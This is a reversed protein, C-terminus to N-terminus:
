NELELEKLIKAEDLRAFLIESKGTKVGSKLGGFIFASEYDNIDTNIQAFIKECTEPIVPL